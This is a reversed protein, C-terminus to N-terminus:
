TLNFDSYKQCLALLSHPMLSRGLLAERVLSMLLTQNGGCCPLCFHVGGCFGDKKEEKDPDSDEVGYYPTHGEKRRFNGSGHHIGKDRTKRLFPHVGYGTKSQSKPTTRCVTSLLTGVTSTYVRKERACAIKSPSKAQFVSLIQRSLKAPPPGKEPLIGPEAFVKGALAWLQLSLGLPGLFDLVCDFVVLNISVYM